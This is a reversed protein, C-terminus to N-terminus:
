KTNTWKKVVEKFDFSTAATALNVGCLGILFAIGDEPLSNFNAYVIPTVYVSFIFGVFVSFISRKLSVQQTFYLSAIAGFFAAILVGPSREVLDILRM